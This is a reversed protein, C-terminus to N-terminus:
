IKSLLGKQDPPLELSELDALGYLTAMFGPFLSAYPIGDWTERSSVKFSLLSFRQATSGPIRRPVLKNLLQYFDQKVM